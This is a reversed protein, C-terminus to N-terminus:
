LKINADNVRFLPVCAHVHMYVPASVYILAGYVQYHLYGFKHLSM